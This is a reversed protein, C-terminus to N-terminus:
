HEQDSCWSYLLLDAIREITVGVRESVVAGSGLAQLVRMAVFTGINMARSAVTTAVLYIVARHPILSTSPASGSSLSCAGIAIIYCLKRGKIESIASWM